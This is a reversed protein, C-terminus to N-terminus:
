SHILHYLTFSGAMLLRLILVALTVAACWISFAVLIGVTINITKIM